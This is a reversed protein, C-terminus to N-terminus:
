HRLEGRAIALHHPQHHTGSVMVGIFGLGRLHAVERPDNSTVTLRVGNEVPAAVTHWGNIQDLERSHAPVMRRIADLTRGQGTVLVELGGPVEQEIAVARLTVENMDILHERLARLDVRSWDTSADAELMRVIEQIAGFADQGPLTPQPARAAGPPAAQPHMGPHMPPTQALLGILPVAVLAASALLRRSWPSM